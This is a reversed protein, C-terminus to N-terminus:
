LVAARTLRFRGSVVVDTFTGGTDVAIRFRAGIPSQTDVTM